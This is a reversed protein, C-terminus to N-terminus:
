RPTSRLLRRLEKLDATMARVGAKEMRRYLRSVQRGLPTVTASGGARGGRVADVVPTAFCANMTRVLKWARTYSMGMERAAASISGTRAIREILEAKGPGLAIEDGLLLRLGLRFEAVEM